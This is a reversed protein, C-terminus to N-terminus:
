PDGQELLEPNDTANGIIKPYQTVYEFWKVYEFWQLIDCAWVFNTKTIAKFCFGCRHHAVLLIRDHDDKLIDGEFIKVGNLDNLGIYEGVSEPVVQYAYPAGVSNSIYMGEDPQGPFGASQALLGYHWEKAISKGRFKIQRM